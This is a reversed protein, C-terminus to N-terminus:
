TRVAHMADSLVDCRSTVITSFVLGGIGCLPQPSDSISSQNERFVCRVAVCDAGAAKERLRCHSTGYKSDPARFLPVLHRMEGEM